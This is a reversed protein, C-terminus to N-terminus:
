RETKGKLGAADKHAKALRRLLKKDKKIKEMEVHDVDTLMTTVTKSM